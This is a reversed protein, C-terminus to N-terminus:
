YNGNEATAHEDVANIRTTQAQYEDHGLSALPASESVLETVTSGTPLYQAVEAPVYEGPM